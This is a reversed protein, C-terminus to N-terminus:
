SRMALRVGQLCLWLLGFACAIWGIFTFFGPLKPLAAVPIMKTSRDRGYGISPAEDSWWVRVRRGVQMDAGPTVPMVWEEGGPQLTGRAHPYGDNPVIESIVFDRQRFTAGYKWLVFAGVAERIPYFVLVAVAMVVLVQPNFRFRTRVRM